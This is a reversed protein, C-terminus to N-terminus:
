SFSILHLIQLRRKITSLSLYRVRGLAVVTYIVLVRLVIWAERAPGGPLVVSTSHLVRETM